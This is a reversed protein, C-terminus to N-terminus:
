PARRRPASAVVRPGHAAVRLLPDGLELPEAEGSVDELLFRGRAPHLAYGYPAALRLCAEPPTRECGSEHGQHRVQRHPLFRVEAVLRRALGEQLPYECVPARLASREASVARSTVAALDRGGRTVPAGGHAEAVEASKAPSRSGARGAFVHNRHGMVLGLKGLLARHM